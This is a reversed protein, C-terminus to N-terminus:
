PTIGDSEAAELVEHVWEQPIKDRHRDVFKVWEEKEKDSELTRHYGPEILECSQQLDEKPAPEAIDLGYLAMARELYNQVTSGSTDIMKGIGSISYGLESYAIAEAEPERLDTTRVLFSSRQRAYREDEM